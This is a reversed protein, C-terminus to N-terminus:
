GRLARRYREGEREMVEDLRAYLNAIHEVLVMLVERLDCEFRDDIDRRLMALEDEIERPPLTELRKVRRRLEQVAYYSM